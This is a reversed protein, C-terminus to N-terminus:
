TLAAMLTAMRADLLALDLSEGISYFSIRANAYSGGSAQAFVWINGTLPTVTAASWSYVTSGWISSAGPTTSRSVGCGGTRPTEAVTSVASNLLRQFNTGGSNRVGRDGTSIGSAILVHSAATNAASVYAFVHADNQTDANNARNSNIRKTSGNGILGTTRSYDGSVFGSNTPASGVLPVLAGTLDDAACLLCSAKIATWVGDTKCGAVFASVATKNATSISSVAEVATFWTQADADYGGAPRARLMGSQICIGSM